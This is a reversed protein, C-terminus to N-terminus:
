SSRVRNVGSSSATLRESKWLGGESYKVPLTGDSFSENKRWPVEKGIEHDFLRRWRGRGLM